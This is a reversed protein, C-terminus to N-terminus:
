APRLAHVMTLAGALRNRASLLRDGDPERLGPLRPGLHRLFGTRAAFLLQAVASVFSMRPPECSDLLTGGYTAHRELAPMTSRVHGRAELRDVEAMVDGFRISVIKGNLQNRASIEM